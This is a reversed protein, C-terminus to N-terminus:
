GNTGAKWAKFAELATIAKQIRGSENGFESSLDGSYYDIMDELSGAMQEMLDAPPTAMPPVVYPFVDEPRGCEKILEDVEAATLNPDPADVLLSRARAEHLLRAAEQADELSSYPQDGVVWPEDLFFSTGDTLIFFAGFPHIARLLYERGTSGQFHRGSGEPHKAWELPKIAVAPAPPAIRFRDCMIDFVEQATRNEIGVIPRTLYAAEIVEKPLTTMEPEGKSEPRVYACNACWTARKDGIAHAGCETCKFLYGGPAWRGRMPRSDEKWDKLDIM